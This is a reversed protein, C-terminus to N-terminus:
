TPEEPDDPICLGPMLVLAGDKVLERLEAKRERRNQERLLRQEDQEVQRKDIQKKRSAKQRSYRGPDEMLGAAQQFATEAARTFAWQMHHSAGRLFGLLWQRFLERGQETTTDIVAAGANTIADDVIMELTKMERRSVDPVPLGNEVRAKM